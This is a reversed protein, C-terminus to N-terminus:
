CTFRSGSIRAASSSQVSLDFIRATAALLVLGRVKEPNDIALRLASSGGMSWGVLVMEREDRLAAEPVGDLQEVYGFIRERRFGCGLAALPAPANNFVFTKM